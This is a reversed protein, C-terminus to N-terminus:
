GPSTPLPRCPRPRGSSEAAWHTNAMCTTEVPDAFPRAFLKRNPVDAAALGLNSNNQWPKTCKFPLSFAIASLTALPKHSPHINLAPLVEVLLDPGVSLCFSDVHTTSTRRRIQNGLLKLASLFFPGGLSLGNVGLLMLEGGKPLLSLLRSLLKPNQHLGGQHRGSKVLM